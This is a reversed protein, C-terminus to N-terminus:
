FGRDAGPDALDRGGAVEGIWRQGFRPDDTAKLYRVCSRFWTRAEGGLFRLWPPSTEGLAWSRLALAYGHMPPTMYEPKELASGPWRTYGSTWVRPSNALFVGFGLFMATLDTLLENDFESGSLRGEGMLRHHGLEHALTAVLDAPGPHSRQDVHIVGYGPVGRGSWTAAPPSVWHGEEDQLLVEGHCVFELPCFEPDVGMRAVVREYLGRVGAEGGDYAGPFFESTPLVPEETWVEFGFEGILWRLRAEVWAQALEDLPCRPRRSRWFM